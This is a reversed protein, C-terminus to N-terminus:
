NKERILQLAAEIQNDRNQTTLMTTDLFVEKDPPFGIGEYSKGDNYRFQMMPTHVVLGFNKNEFTGSNGIPLYADFLEGHGGWTREGMVYGNPLSAIAMATLEACSISGMNTLVVIPAAIAPADSNPEIVFPIQPSYDLRGDGVKEKVSGFQLPKDILLGLFYTLDVINGGVNNRVDIIVAKPNSHLKHVYENFIDEFGPNQFMEAFRFESFYFYLISDSPEWGVAIAFRGTPDTKRQLETFYNELSVLSFYQFFDHYDPRKQIREEAPMILEGYWDKYAEKFEIYFHGDVLNATMEKLYAHAQKADAENDKVNLHAFLPKYTRYVKDWDTPDIDWFVYNNNMGQWFSEFLATGSTRGELPYYDNPNSIVPIEERCSTICFLTIGFILLIAASRKM